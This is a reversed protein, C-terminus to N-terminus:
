IPLVVLGPNGYWHGVPLETVDRGEIEALMYFYHPKTKKTEKDKYSKKRLSLIPLLYRQRQSAAPGKAKGVYSYQLPHLVM